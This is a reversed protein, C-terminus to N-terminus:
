VPGALSAWGYCCSRWSGWGFVVEVERLATQGIEAPDAEVVSTAVHLHQDREDV